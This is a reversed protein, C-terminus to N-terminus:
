KNKVMWFKKGRARLDSFSKFVDAKSRLFEWSIGLFFDKTAAGVGIHVCCVQFVEASWSLAIFVVSLSNEERGGRQAHGERIKVHQLAGRQCGALKWLKKWNKIVRTIRCLEIWLLWWLVVRAARVDSIKFLLLVDVYRTRCLFNFLIVGLFHIRNVTNPLLNPEYYDFTFFVSFNFLWSGPWSM